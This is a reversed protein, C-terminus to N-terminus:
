LRNNTQPLEFTLDCLAPVMFWALCLSTQAQCTGRLRHSPGTAVALTVEAVQLVHQEPM